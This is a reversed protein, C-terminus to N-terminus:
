RLCIIAMNRGSKIGEKRYSHMLNSNCYTCIKSDIINKKTVGCKILMQKNLYVTDIYYKQKNNLIQGKYIFKEEDFENKLENYFMDKVDEDVEFHCRRITPGIVSIIDEPNCGYKDKMFEVAKIAIQKLTGQWGSHINGIIKKKSDFLYIPTCDAFTLSLAKKRKNTIVGDINYFDKNFIGSENEVSKIANTHTQYPRIIDANEIKLTKLLESYNKDVEEKIEEYTNNNGFDLPKISFGHAIIDNDELLRRFQLIRQEGNQIIITENNAMNNNLLNVIGDVQSEISKDNNIIVYNSNKIYFKDDPQAELRKKAMENNTKDRLCIRHKKVNEDAIISIVVDCIKNLGSEILLPADIIVTNERIQNKIENVVYVYTLKNLKEREEPRSFILEALKKRDIEKNDSLINKGFTKIIEKYYMQGCKSLKKAIQDADIIEINLRKSIEKSFM